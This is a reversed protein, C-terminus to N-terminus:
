SVCERAAVALFTGIDALPLVLDVVGADMASQPMFPAEAGGPAQVVNLGSKRRVCKMGATGDANSGTLLVAVLGSGWVQAASEFLVDISPRSWNVKQDVSLSLLGDREALMHYNAPAVYVCGPMLADKDCADVVRLHLRQSWFAGLDFRDSAHRHQVVLIPVPFNAPLPELIRPIATIGGASAGVVVASLRRGAVTKVFSEELHGYSTHEHNM